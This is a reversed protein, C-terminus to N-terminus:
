KESYLKAKRLALLVTPATFAEYLTGAEANWVGVVQQQRTVTALDGRAIPGTLAAETGLQFVNELTQRALPGAMAKAMDAPIGAAQYAQLATEMLTVLYNSAFVSAAHYLLKQGADIQVVKAAIAQLAPILVALAGADGEVSFITDTFSAAVQAADAFSRVPHLSAVLAGAERAAALESSAKAGSCHFVISDPGFVGREAMAACTTAIRDDPVSLMTIQAPQLLAIDALAVGAGIFQRAADASAQTRNVIQALRLVQLESFRRGLVRGVQGAGIINLSLM